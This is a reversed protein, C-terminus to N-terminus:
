LSLGKRCCRVLYDPDQELRQLLPDPVVETVPVGAAARRALEREAFAQVLQDDAFLAAIRRAEAERAKLDQIQM